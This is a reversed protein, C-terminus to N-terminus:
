RSHWVVMGLVVAVLTLAILLTRLSFHWKLQRIWPLLSSIATCLVPIWYAIRWHRSSGWPPGRQGFFEAQEHWFTWDPLVFKGEPYQGFELYGCGSALVIVNGGFSPLLRKDMWWYGRGWLITLLVCAIGCGVSFAIRLYRLYSTM